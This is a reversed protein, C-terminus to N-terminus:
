AGDITPGLLVITPDDLSRAAARVREPTMGELDPVIGVLRGQVLLQRAAESARDEPSILNMLRVGRYRRLHRDFVDDPMSRTALETMAEEVRQAWEDAEEPPIVVQLRIEGGGVRPIVDSWVDYVSRQTPSFSLADAALYALFRMAELDGNEPFGFSALVWTTISDYERRVPREAPTFPVMPVPAPSATGLFPRLHSEVEEREVPGVVAVFARDVTFHERAFTDVQAFTLREVTEPTGVTPRGWPHSSGFFARDMERTAADAPNALRGRLEAAIAARERLTAASSPPDRFLALMVTRTAAEWADPAAVVSISLADKHPTIGLTAGLSDLDSRIEHILSRAALYAVGARATEENAPGVAILVETAVVPTGPETLVALRQQGSAPLISGAVALLLAGAGGIWRM